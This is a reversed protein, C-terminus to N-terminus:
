AEPGKPPASPRMSMVVLASGVVSLLTGLLWSDLGDFVVFSFFFSALVVGRVYTWLLYLRRSESTDGRCYPCIDGVIPIGQGCGICRMTFLM